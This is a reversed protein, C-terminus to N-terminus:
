ESLLYKFDEKRIGASNTAKKLKDVNDVYIGDDFLSKFRKNKREKLIEIKEEISDKVLYRYVSVKKKQGIRHARDTAQNEVAPNWWPEVHFIYNAKVLNLGVGGTKLTMLFVAPDHSEDFEKLFKERKAGTTKGNIAFYKINKEALSNEIREFTSIFQTFVLVSENCKIINEVSNIIEELKPSLRDYTVGPVAAPDSCIQRLRLLATLMQIQSKAEGNKDIIDMVKNNWSVAIDRYIKKQKPEFLVKVVHETKEPLDLLINQKSRRLVLPKIKLKLYSLEEDELNDPKVYKGLFSSYSGLCGPVTLDLISYLEDYHNEIPTGSLCLKFNASILRAARARKTKINKLNHAEDYIHIDWHFQNLFEQHEVLLGYSTVIIQDSNEKLLQAMEEKTSSTFKQTKLKPAFKKIESLWNYTLSTPVVILTKKLVKDKRLRDLFAITQITKGLGMDDALIGGMKLQHLDYIWKAGLKQYPKLEGNFDASTKFTNKDKGLNDFFDCLDMWAKHGKVPLGSARLMLLDLTKNRPMQYIKSELGGESSKDLDKNFLSEWFWNLAKISPLKKEKPLIYYKGEHEIFGTKTTKLDLASVEKGNFFFKPHLAFWDIASNESTEDNSEEVSFEAKLNASSITLLEESNFYVNCNDLSSLEMWPSLDHTKLLSESFFNYQTILSDKFVNKSKSKKYIAPAPNNAKEINLFSFWAKTPQLFVKGNTANVVSSMLTYIIKLFGQNVGNVQLLENDGLTLAPEKYISILKDYVEELYDRFDKRVFSKISRKNVDKFEPWLIEHCKMYFDQFFTKKLKSYSKDDLSLINSNFVDEFFSYLFLSGLGKHRALKKSSKYSASRRVRTSVREFLHGSCSILGENLISQVYSIDRPLNFLTHLDDREKDSNNYILTSFQVKHGLFNVAFGVKSADVTKTEFEYEIEKLIIENDGDNSSFSTLYKIAEFNVPKHLQFSVPFLKNLYSLKDNQATDTQLYIGSTMFNSVRDAFNQVSHFVFEGERHDFAYDKGIFSSFQKNMSFKLLGITKDQRKELSVKPTINNKKFIFPTSEKHASLKFENLPKLGSSHLISTQKIPFCINSKIVNNLEKRIQNHENLSESTVESEFNLDDKYVLMYNSNLTPHNKVSNLIKINLYKQLDIKKYPDLNMLNIFKENASKTFVPLLEVPIDKSYPHELIQSGNVWSEDSFVYALHDFNYIQNFSNYYSNEKFKYLIANEDQDGMHEEADANFYNRENIINYKKLLKNKEYLSCDNYSKIPVLEEMSSQFDAQIRQAQTHSIYDKYIISTLKPLAQIEDM